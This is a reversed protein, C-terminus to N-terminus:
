EKVAQQLLQTRVLSLEGTGAALRHRCGALQMPSWCASVYRLEAAGASQHEPSSPCVADAVGRQQAPLSGEQWRSTASAHRSWNKHSDTLLEFILLAQLLLKGEKRRQQGM